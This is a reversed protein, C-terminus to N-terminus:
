DCNLALSINTDHWSGPTKLDGKTVVRVRGWTVAVHTNRNPAHAVTGQSRFSNDAGAPASESVQLSGIDLPISGVCCVCNCLNAMM